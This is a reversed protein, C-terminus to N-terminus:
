LHPWIKQCVVLTVGFTIGVEKVIEANPNQCELDNKNYTWRGNLGGSLSTFHHSLNYSGQNGQILFDVDAFYVTDNINGIEEVRIKGWEMDIMSSMGHHDQGLCLFNDEDFINIILEISYPGQPRWVGNFISM